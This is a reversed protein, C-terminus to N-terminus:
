GANWAHGQGRRVLQHRLGERTFERDLEGFKVNRRMPMWYRIDDTLLDLWEAFRRDDLLEAEHYLFEEVEHKLLMQAVSSGVTVDHWPRWACRPATTHKHCRELPWQAVHGARGLQPGDPIRGLAAYFGRQNQEAAKAVTVNRIRGPMELGDTDFPPAEHGMGM